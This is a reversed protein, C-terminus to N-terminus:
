LRMWNEEESKRHTCTEPKEQLLGVKGRLGPSNDHTKAVSSSGALESRCDRLSVRTMEFSKAALRRSNM